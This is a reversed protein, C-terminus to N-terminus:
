ATESKNDTSGPPREAHVPGLMAAALRDLQGEVSADIVGGRTRVVVSGRELADRGRIQIDGGDARGEVLGPLVAQCMELDEPHVEIVIGSPELVLALVQALQDQVVHPNLAIVQHTVRRAVTQALVVLDDAALKRSSERDQEFAEM